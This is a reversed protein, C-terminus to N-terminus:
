KSVLYKVVVLGVSWDCAIDIMVARKSYDTHIMEKKFQEKVQKKEDETLASLSCDYSPSEERYLEENISYYNYYSDPNYYKM